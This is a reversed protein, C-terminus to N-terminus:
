EEDETEVKAKSTIKAVEVGVKPVYDAMNCVTCGCIWNKPPYVLEPLCEKHVGTM